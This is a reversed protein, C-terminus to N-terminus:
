SGLELEKARVCAVLHGHEIEVLPIESFKCADIVYDCRPHFRCGEPTNILSPVKGKIEKFRYIKGKVSPFSQLLAYTYPHKPNYFINKCEAIEMIKGAYMVAVRDCNEAIVGLDHTIILLSLDLEKKLDRILELIQAQITVDLATTAEDAILLTPQCSTAISIMVRQRMGGSLEHPYSNIISEAHAIGVKKLIKIIEERIEEKNVDQHLEIVEGIQKGISLVPNLSSMPDQFIMAINRGRIKRMDDEDLELLNRGDFNIKGDIIKGPYGILKIITLGLTSKGSGSEGILGFSEGKEINFSVGDVAKIDGDISSFYLKLNHIELLNSM